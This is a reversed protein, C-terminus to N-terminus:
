RRLGLFRGELERLAVTRPELAQRRVRRPPAGDDIPRLGQDEAEAKVEAPASTARDDAHFSWGEVHEAKKM